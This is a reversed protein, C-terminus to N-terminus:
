LLTTQLVVGECACCSSRMLAASNPRATFPTSCLAADSDLEESVENKDLSACGSISAAARPPCAHTSGGRTCPQAPPAGRDNGSCRRVAPLHAAADEPRCGQRRCPCACQMAYCAAHEHQSHCTPLLVQVERRHRPSARANCNRLAQVHVFLCTSATRQARTCRLAGARLRGISENSLARQHAPVRLQQKRKCAVGRVRHV